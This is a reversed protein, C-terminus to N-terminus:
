NRPLYHVSYFRETWRANSVLAQCVKPKEETEHDRFHSIYTYVSTGIISDVRIETLGFYLCCTVTIRDGIKAGLVQPSGINCRTVLRVNPDTIYEPPDGNGDFAFLDLIPSGPYYYFFESRFSQNIEIPQGKCVITGFCDSCIPKNEENFLLKSMPDKTNDFARQVCLGYARRSIRHTIAKPDMGLIVSGRAIALEGRQPAAILGIDKSFVEIIRQYLYLSQGFGGVLFMADLKGGTQDLQERILDIVQNVVPDFVKKRLEDLKVCLAGNVAGFDEMTKGELKVKAPVIFYEDDENEFGPKTFTIFQNVMLDITPKNIEALDGFRKKFIDRINDDLFISGCSRGQGTTIEKLKMLEKSQISEFVILDVTGGGADCILFQKGATIKFRDSMSKCYLAAAEPESTLMLRDPNDYRAIIDSRICAERMVAKADDDWMAPVTIWYRFKSKDYIKGFKHKFCNHIHTSFESLYDSIVDVPEMKHPLSILPIDKDLLLKFKDVLIDKNDISEAKRIADYGWAIIKKSDRAYLSVTPVKVYTSGGARPWTTIDFIENLGDNIYVCSCGSYTTGFD